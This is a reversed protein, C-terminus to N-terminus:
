SMDSVKITGNLKANMQVLQTKIAALSEEMVSLDIPPVAPEKSKAAEKGADKTGKQGPKQPAPEPVTPATKTVPAPGGSNIYDLLQKGRDSVANLANADVASFVVLSDILLKHKDMSTKDMGKYAKVFLKMNDALKEFSDALDALPDAKEALKSVFDLIPQMKDIQLTDKGTAASIENFLSAISKGIKGGTNEDVKSGAVKALFELMDELPENIAGLQGLVSKQKDKMKAFLPEVKMIIMPISGLMLEIKKTIPALDQIGAMKVVVDALNNLDNGVGMIANKGKEMNSEGFWWSTKADPNAGIMGLASTLAMIMNQINMQVRGGPGLDAASILVTEGEIIKGNADYKPIRLDAAKVVFDAIGVLDGGVGRIIEAGMEGASKSFWGVEGQSKGIDTLVDAVAGIMLKMNKAVNKFVGDNLTLYKTVEGKANYTPFKLEAFAQVGEAIGTIADGVGSIADLGDEVDDWDIDADASIIATTIGTLVTSLAKTLVGPDIGAEYIKVFDAIGSGIDKISKGVMLWAPMAFYLAAVDLLDLAMADVISGFMMGITTQKPDHTSTKFLQSDAHKGLAWLGPAMILMTVSALIMAVSGVMMAVSKLPNISFADVISGIMLELNTMGGGGSWAPNIPSTEWLASDVHKSMAWIGASLTIMAISVVLLAAAGVLMAVSKLPNIAFSDVISDIMVTLQTKGDTMNWLPSDAHKGLAWIGASLTIMALSVFILAVGGALMGFSKFPNIAFADVISDIMISINTRNTGDGGIAFLGSMAKKYTANLTLIGLSMVLMAAGAAILAVAGFFIFPALLGAGAFLLGTGTIAAGTIALDEWGIGFLKFAGIGIALMAISIGVFFMAAAGEEIYSAAIGILGFALGVLTVAAATKLITIFDLNFLQFVALGVALSIIALGIWVIAKAGKEISNEMSGVVDFVLGFIAIGAVIFMAGKVFSGWSGGALQMTIMMALGMGVIALSMWAIAKAGKDINESVEGIKSFVYAFGAIVPIVTLMAMPGIIAYAMSAVLLTFGFLAISSSMTALADGGKQIAAFNIESFKKALKTISDVFRDVSTDPIKEWFKMASSLDKLGKGFIPAAKGFATMGAAAKAGDAALGGVLGTLGKNDGTSAVSGGKASAAKDLKDILTTLLANQTDMQSELLEAFHEISRASSAMSQASSGFLGAFKDLGM